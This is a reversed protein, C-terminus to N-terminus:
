KEKAEELIFQLATITYVIRTHVKQMTMNFFFKNKKLYDTIQKVLEEAINAPYTFYPPFRNDFQSKYQFIMDLITQTYKEESKNHKITVFGDDLIIIKM